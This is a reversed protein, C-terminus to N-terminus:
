FELSEAIARIGAKACVDDNAPGPAGSVGIGGLISGGTEVLLGGGIAAVGPVHRVGGSPKGPQTERDLETTGTRFSVATWAKRPALEVTHAGAFRDRLLVQTLGSRDVVAVAVQFGDARCKALAAQAAKLATEPTLMKVTFTATEAASVGQLAIALAAGVAARM